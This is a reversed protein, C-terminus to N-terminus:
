RAAPRRKLRRVAAEAAALASNVSVEALLGPAAVSDGALFVDGGRDPSPRDRWTHGPLDLAGTRGRSVSSRRWTVRDRWGPAVLDYFGELRGVADRKSEKPRLPIQGQYLSTGGAALAPDRDSYQAAFAGEDMDFVIHRDRSSHTLGLDLTAAIGSEWRLSEDGLLVRASDLATAVIVPGDQPIETVRSGTHIRVGMERCREALNAIVTAWGGIPYRTPLPFRPRGVRLLREFVFAASLRGPDADYLVPGLFGAADRASEQGFREGAWDRFSRDVPPTLRRGATVMWLYAPPVMSRLTGNRRFRLRMTDLVQLRVFPRALDRDELWRWAPGDCYFTHTGDNAAYPGELTRARGGLTEHAEHVEARVGLEACAIAATLGALGGGIVTIHKM